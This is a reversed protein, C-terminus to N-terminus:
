NNSEDKKMWWDNIKDEKNMLWKNWREDKKMWWDNIKDEKNM